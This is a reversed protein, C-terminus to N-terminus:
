PIPGSGAARTPGEVMARTAMACAGDKSCIELPVKRNLTLSYILVQGEEQVVYYCAGLWGRSQYTVCMMDDRVTYSGSTHSVKNRAELADVAFALEVTGYREERHPYRWTQGAIRAIDLSIANAPKPPFAAPRIVRPAPIASTSNVSENPAIAHASAATNVAGTNSLTPLEAKAKEPTEIDIVVRGVLVGFTPSTRLYKTEGPDLAFTVTKETETATSAIYRGATRDVYFFGGPKSAGVVQGNLRIDPQIAAGLMSSSRLFFIRGEGPRLTPITSSMESYKPGSACGALVVVAAVLVWGRLVATRLANM